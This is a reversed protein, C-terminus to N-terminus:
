IKLHKWRFIRITGHARREKLGANSPRAPGQFMMSKTLGDPHLIVRTAATFFVENVLSSPGISLNLSSYYQLKLKLDIFFFKMNGSKKCSRRFQAKTKARNEVATHTACAGGLILARNRCPGGGRENLVGCKMCDGNELFTKCFKSAVDACPKPCGRCCFAMAHSRNGDGGMIKVWRWQGDIYLYQLTVDCIHYKGLQGTDSRCKLYLEIEDLVFARDTSHLGLNIQEVGNQLIYSVCTAHIIWECVDHHHVVFDCKASALYDQYQCGECESIGRFYGATKHMLIELEFCSDKYIFFSSNRVQFWNPLVNVIYGTSTKIRDHRFDIACSMCSCIVNMCPTFGSKFSWSNCVKSTLSCVSSCYACIPGSIVFTLNQPLHIALAGYYGNYLASKRLGPDCCGKRGSFPYKAINLLSCHEFINEFDDDFHTYMNYCTEINEASLGTCATIAHLAKDLPSIVADTLPVIMSITNSFLALFCFIVFLNIAKLSTLGEKRLDFFLADVTYGDLDKVPSKLSWIIQPVYTLSFKM